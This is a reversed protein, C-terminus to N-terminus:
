ESKQAEPGLLWNRAPEVADFISDESYSQALAQYQRSAKFQATNGV